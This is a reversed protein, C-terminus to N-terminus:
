SRNSMFDAAQRDRLFHDDLDLGHRFQRRNSSARGGGDGLLYDSPEIRVDGIQILMDTAVPLQCGVIDIPTHPSVGLGSGSM